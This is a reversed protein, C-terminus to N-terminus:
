AVNQLSTKNTNFEFNSDVNNKIIQPIYEELVTFIKNSYYKRITIEEDKQYTVATMSPMLRRLKDILTDIHAKNGLRNGYKYIQNSLELVFSKFNCMNSGVMPETSEEELDGLIHTYYSIMAVFEATPKNPKRNKYTFAYSAADILLKRGIKWRKNKKNVNKNALTKEEEKSVEKYVYDFGEHCFERHNGIKYNTMKLDSAKCVKIYDKLGKYSETKEDGTNDIAVAIAYRMVQFATNTNENTDNKFTDNDKEFVKNDVYEFGFLVRCLDRSHGNLDHAILYNQINFLILMLFTVKIIFFFRKEKFIIKM